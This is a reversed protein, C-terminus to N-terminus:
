SMHIALTKSFIRPWHKEFIHLGISKTSDSCMIFERFPAPPGAAANPSPHCLEGGNHTGSGNFANAEASKLLM